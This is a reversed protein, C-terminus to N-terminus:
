KLRVRYYKIGAGSSATYTPPSAGNVATWGGTNSLNDNSELTGAQWGIVVNAGVTGIDVKVPGYVDFSQGLYQGANYISLAEYSTLTRRWIGLDDLDFTATGYQGLPDQGITLNNGSYLTGLGQLSWSSALIGDVYVTALVNTRDVVGLVHHWAGDNITPSNPVPDRLWTSTSATSSLSWEIKGATTSDTFVWGIQWTSNVANGIIPVDNFGATYKTWFAVSFSTNEDFLLDSAADQVVLYNVGPTTAIHVGQGVKGTLFPPNGGVADANNGRGSSDTYNGDFKLHLVLDNTLFAFTPQPVVTLTAAASNTSGANNSVAVTYSGADAYSVRAFTLKSTTAGAIPADAKKWQYSLPLSGGAQVTLSAPLGAAVTQSVPATTILPPTSSGYTGLSYMSAITDESLIKDYVAVEDMAGDFIQGAWQNKGIWVVTNVKTLASATTSSVLRGNVYFKAGSAAGPQFTVAVHQWEGTVLAAGSSDHDLIGPTTFRLEAGLLKFAWSTNETVISRDGSLTNPKVWAAVSLPGGLGLSGAEVFADTGDFTYAKNNADFGRYTPPVPGATAITVNNSVFGDHGGAYDFAVVGSAEGLSWYAVPSATVVAAAYSGAPPTVLTLNAASSLKGGTVNTVGVTYAGSQAATCNTLVLTANTAGVINAGNFKWQYKIPPTGSVAVTFSARGGPYVSRSLPQQDITPPVAPDVTVTVAASTVTGYPNTIVVDYSGADGTAASTKSYVYSTAGPINAGNLRWQYTMPLLGAVDPTITFPTTTYITGAPNVIPPDSVMVPAANSGIATFYLSQIRGPTLIKDYVTVEDIAGDWYQGAWQNKGIWFGTTGANVASADVPAGVPQGDVYFLTGGAAGPNFTVAVFQWENTQVGAGTGDHDKIGPTTFRLDSDLTKFAYSGYEGAIARDAVLSNPKIWALISMPGALGLSAAPVYSNATGDFAAATNNAGLGPFATGSPGPVNTVGIYKGNEGAALTGANVATPFVKVPEDLRWYGAPSDGKIQSAYGAANTTRAAFHAAIQNASLAGGYFAVEDVSGDFTRNPSSTSGVFFFANTNPEYNGAGSAVQVGDVYLTMTGAPLTTPTFVGVVHQWQNSVIVGGNIISATTTAAVGVRFQWTAANQYFLWGIRGTVFSMSNVPSLLSATDNSPKAWFEVTFAGNPNLAANYAVGMSGFYSTGLSPNSFAVAADGAIAGDVSKTFADYYLGNAAPGLSGLNTATDYAPVTVNEGFRWYTLPQQALIETAYDAYATAATALLLAAGAGLLLRRPNNM